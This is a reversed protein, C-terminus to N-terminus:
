SINRKLFRPSSFFPSISLKRSISSSSGRTISRSSRNAFEKSSTMTQKRVREFATKTGPERVIGITNSALLYVVGKISTIIGGIVAFFAGMDGDLEVANCCYGDYILDELQCPIHTSNDPNIIHCDLLVKVNIVWDALYTCFVGVLGSIILIFNINFNRHAKTFEDLSEDTL